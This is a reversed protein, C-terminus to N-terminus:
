TCYDRLREGSCRLYACYRAECHPPVVDCSPARALHTGYCRAFATYADGCFSHGSALCREECGPRAAGCRGDRDCMAACAESLPIEDSSPAEPEDGPPRVVPDLESSAADSRATGADDDTAEQLIKGGCAGGGLALLAALVVGHGADTREGRM